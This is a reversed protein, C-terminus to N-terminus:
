MGVGTYQLDGRRWVARAVFRLVVAWVLALAMWRAWEHPAIRGLLADAPVTFLFPFPTCGAITRAWDPFLALPLMAGGLLGSIFRYAVQLSWVNDAWFAVAQIPLTMLFNLANGVLAAAAALFIGGVPVTADIVFPVLAGFLLIQVGTPALAGLLAAYRMPFYGAPYILYRSLSGEYIDQSVAMENETARTVKGILLAAAYYLLMEEERYGGITAAGSQRFIFTWLLWASGFQFLFGLLAGIWFDARYSMRKRAEVSAIQLFLRPRV